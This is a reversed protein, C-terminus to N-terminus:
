RTTSLCEVRTIGIAAEDGAEALALVLADRSSPPFPVTAVIEAEPYANIAQENAHDADEAQCDFALVAGGERYLVLYPQLGQGPDIVRRILGAIADLRTQHQHGLAQERDPVVRRRLVPGNALMWEVVAHPSIAQWAQVNWGSLVADPDRSVDDESPAQEAAAGLVADSPLYLDAPDDAEDLELATFYTLLTVKEVSLGAASFGQVAMATMQALLASSPKAPEGEPWDQQLLLAHTRNSYIWYM